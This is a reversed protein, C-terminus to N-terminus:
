VISMLLVGCGEHQTVTHIVCVPGPLIVVITMVFLILRIRVFFESITDYSIDLPSEYVARLSVERTKKRRVSVIVIVIIAVAVVIALIFLVLVVAIPVGIPIDSESPDATNSSTPIGISNTPTSIASAIGSSSSLTTTQVDPQSVSVPGTITSSRPCGTCSVVCLLYGCVCHHSYLVSHVLMLYSWKGSVSILPVSTVSSGDPRSSSTIGFSTSLIM